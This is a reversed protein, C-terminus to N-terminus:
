YIFLPLIINKNNEDLLVLKESNKDNINGFSVIDTNELCYLENNNLKIYNNIKGSRNDVVVNFM